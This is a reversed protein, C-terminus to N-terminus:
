GKTITEDLNMIVSAVMTWAALEAADLKENRPSEGVSLLKMASSLDQHFAARQQNLVTMLVNIEAQTPTRALALRYAYKIRDYSSASPSETMIREAFKRAAEVFGTENMLVLAQLPTNTTGRRVVCFEREPADFTQMTPPPVTRKWFIYLSRRYLAEGHDQEYKQATFGGGFAMEEWLGAPQYPKVSPGGIKEVLLGSVFLAQDRIFEAPLRFRPARALLRNEPDKELLEKTVRSSQKYTNSTVILKLLAKVDWGTRIFETALWDLLEPHSPREGQFGFNESTKVIGTGFIMQWFNNVAVRATLPHSPDVLWQALGLRNLPAGKPMPPLAEPTGPTVKEGKKDYEGRILIFTERPKEMEQMVMTTPISADLEDRKKKWDALEATLRQYPEDYNELYFKSLANRQEDTRKDPATVLIQRITELGALQQVEAASLERHYIRVDDIMGKFPAGPSRRGLRLPVSTQMTGTLKDHTVEVEAPKGNLYIKVGKAKSSGDYTAFVHTWQNTEIPQKTNVRIANGEWQHILHVFVKGDGLYLDWGRYNAADDMRSLVTMHENSTPYVWAGYSFKETREFNGAEGIEVHTNGDFRLAGGFKGPQWDAKGRVTGTPQKGLLDRVQEGSMEDLAYHALLGVSAAPSQNLAALATKEWEAQASVTEAARAKLASELDAIKRAYADLQEQQEHSPVKIFPVANGKQGDLGQEPVNNFFAYFRYYDKMTFPEYKHDHCQACRFTLGMFATATTDIRDVIYATHYEEPIAGGEFNIPHNRNFGTAVKQELTANPLLDGALQEIIFQDYPLNRNFAGIVWERWKWMDRHSDIHFGHTDAYRAMDLWVVAMREGFRPSALLRDVVKEYANPSKDALFADVEAPTPPLGTLDLSLRRMLTVRDAAPSPKLGEQELRALIFADIPNLVWRKNKVTPLAPRQPPVFAWHKEYKAGQEIWRRLTEIQADTLKKGSDAPPMTRTRVRLWLVSDQLKGPVIATNGSPLKATAGDPTDLRLGAKRANADFGHCAFCNESLVPLVDRNFDVKGKSSQAAASLTTFVMGCLAIGM